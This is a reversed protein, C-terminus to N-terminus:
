KRRPRRRTRWQRIMRREWPATGGWVGADLGVALAYKLCEARVTCRACVAKAPADDGGREIFFSVGPYEVCLADDFWGPWVMGRIEALPDDGVGGYYNCM